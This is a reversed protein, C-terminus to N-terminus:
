GNSASGCTSFSLATKGSPGLNGAIFHDAEAPCLHCVINHCDVDRGYFVQFDRDQEWSLNSFLGFKSCKKHALNDFPM